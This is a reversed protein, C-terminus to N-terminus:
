REKDERTRDSRVELMHFRHRRLGADCDGDGDGDYGGEGDMRLM